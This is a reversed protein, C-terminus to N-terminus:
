YGAGVTVLGAWYFPHRYRPDRRLELAAARLNEAVNGDGRLLSARLRRHLALTLTTASASDLQWLSVVTTPTGAAFFAWALGIVGEGAGIKGRATDCATLVAVAADLKLSLIEWAELRGDTQAEQQGAKTLQLFSYMPNTDDVIGHTAFHLVTADATAARVRPESAAGGVFAKTRGAGYLTTLATAEAKADPIRPLDSEPDAAVLLRPAGSRSALATRRGQMAHLVAISPAYAVSADDIVARGAAPALAEFPVTWLADDPIVMLRTRGALADRAPKLLLDYLARADDQFDLARSGLKRSFSGAKAALSEKTVPSVFESVVPAAGSAADGRTLVFIYTVTDTVVYEVIATRADSLLDGASRVPDDDIGGRALRRVTYRADLSDRFEDSMLRARRLRDTAEEVAGAPAAQGRGVTRLRATATVVDQELAREKEREAPTLPRVAVSGGDLLDALARARVHEAVSLAEAPRHADVLLGTLNHYPELKDLLFRQRSQPGGAVEARVAEITEIADRYSREARATEHLARLINGGTTQPQWLFENQKEERAVAIAREASALGEAFKGDDALMHAIADLSEVAGPLDKIAERIALSRRYGELAEDKNERRRISAVNYLGTAIGIRNGTRENIAVQRQFYDLARDFQGLERYVTGINGLQNAMPLTQDGAKELVSLARTYYELALDYNGQEDHIVGINNLTVTIDAADSTQQKLTVAKQYSDLAERYRGQRWYILGINNFVRGLTQRDGAADAIAMARQNAALARDYDSTLRYVIALNALASAIVGDNHIAEGTALARNLADLAAAYEARQGPISSYVILAMAAGRRDGRREAIDHLAFYARTADDARGMRRLEAARVNLAQQLEETLAAPQPDLLAGRAEPTSADVLRAVLDAKASAPGAPAQPMAGSLSVSALCLFVVARWWWTVRRM